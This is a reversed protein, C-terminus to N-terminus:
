LLVVWVGCAASVTTLCVCSASLLLIEELLAIDEFWFLFQLTLIIFTHTGSLICILKARCICVLAAVFREVSWSRQDFTVTIM